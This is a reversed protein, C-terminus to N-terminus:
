FLRSRDATCHPNGTCYDRTSEPRDRRNSSDCWRELTRTRSEQTCAALAPTLVCALLLAGAPMTRKMLAKRDHLIEGNPLTRNM